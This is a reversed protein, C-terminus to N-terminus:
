PAYSLHAGIKGEIGRIKGFGGPILVATCM